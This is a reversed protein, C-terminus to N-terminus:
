AADRAPWRGGSKFPEGFEECLIRRMVDSRSVGQALHDLDVRDKVALPLETTLSKSGPTVRDYPYGRGEEYEYGYYRCLAQRAVARMSLGEAEARKKIKGRLRSSLGYIIVFTTEPMLPMM